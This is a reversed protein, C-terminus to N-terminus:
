SPISRLFLLIKAFRFFQFHKNCMRSANNCVTVCQLLLCYMLWMFWNQCMILVFACLTEEASLGGAKLELVVKRVKVKETVPTKPHFLKYLSKKVGKLTVHTRHGPFAHPAIEYLRHEESGDTNKKQISYIPHDVLINKGCSHM